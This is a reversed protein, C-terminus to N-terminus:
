LSGSKLEPFDWADMCNFNMCLGLRKGHCCLQSPQNKKKKKGLGTDLFGRPRTHCSPQAPGAAVTATRIM